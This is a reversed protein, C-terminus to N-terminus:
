IYVGLIWLFGGLIMERAQVIRLTNPFDSIKAPRCTEGRTQVNATSTLSDLHHCIRYAPWIDQCVCGLNVLFCIGLLWIVFDGSLTNGLIQGFNALLVESM